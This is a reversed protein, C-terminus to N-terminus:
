RSRVQLERVKARIKRYEGHQRLNKLDPDQSMWKFDRYGLNISEELAEIAREL